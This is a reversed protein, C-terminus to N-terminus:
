CASRRPLSMRRLVTNPSTATAASPSTTQTAVRGSVGGGACIEVASVITGPLVTSFPPALFAAFASPARNGHFGRGRAAGGRGGVNAGDATKRESLDTCIVVSVAPRIASIVKM